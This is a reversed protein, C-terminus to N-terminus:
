ARALLSRIAVAGAEEGQQELSAALPAALDRSYAVVAERLDGVREPQGLAELRAELERYLALAFGPAAEVASAAWSVVSAYFAKIDEEKEEEERQAEAMLDAAAIVADPAVRLNGSNVALKYCTIANDVEGRTRYLDGLRLRVDGTYSRIPQGPASAARYATEALDDQGRSLLEDGLHLAVLPDIASARACIEKQSSEEAIQLLARAAALSTDSVGEELVAEYFTRAETPDMPALKEALRLLALHRSSDLRKEVLKRLHTEAADMQDQRILLGALEFRARARQESSAGKQTLVKELMSRAAATRGEGECMLALEPAVAPNRATRELEAEAADDEGRGRLIRAAKAAAAPSVTRDGTKAARRFAELALDTEELRLCLHGVQWWDGPEGDAGGAELARTCAQVSGRRDGLDFREGAIWTLTTVSLAHHIGEDFALLRDETSLLSADRLFLDHAPDIGLRERVIGKMLEDCREVMKRGADAENAHDSSVMKMTADKQQKLLNLDAPSHVRRLEECLKRAAAPSTLTLLRSWRILAQVQIANYDHTWRSRQSKILADVDVGTADLERTPQGKPRLSPHPLLTSLLSDIIRPSALSIRDVEARASLSDFPEADLPLLPPVTRASTRIPPAPINQRVSQAWELLDIQLDLMEIQALAWGPEKRLVQRLRGAARTLYRHKDLPSVPGLAAERDLKALHFAPLVFGPNETQAKEFCERARTLERPQGGRLYNSYHALGCDTRAFALVSRVLRPEGDSIKANKEVRKLYTIFRKMLAPTPREFFYDVFGLRPEGLMASIANVYHAYARAFKGEEATIRALNWDLEAVMAEGRVEKYERGAELSAVAIDRWTSEEGAGDQPLASGPDALLWAIFGRNAWAALNGPNVAIVKAYEDLVLRAVDPELPNRRRWLEEYMQARQFHAREMTPALEAARAMLRLSHVPEVEALGAALLFEPDDRTRAPRLAEAECLAARAGEGDGLYFRATALTVKARFLIDQRDEVDEPTKELRQMAAEINPVAEYLEHPVTGSLLRLHWEAALMWAYGLEARAALVERRGLVRLFKAAFRRVLCRLRDVLVWTRNAFRRWHTASERRSAADYIEQARRYLSRAAEYADLTNSTAYDDAEALFAAARLRGPPLLRVKEEVGERIQAYIQSAVSWYVREFLRRYDEGSLPSGEESRPPLRYRVTQAVKGPAENGGLRVQPVIKLIAEGDSEERVGYWGCVHVHAAPPGDEDRDPVLTEELLSLRSVRTGLKEVLDRRLWGLSAEVGSSGSSNPSDSFEGVSYTYQFPERSEQIWLRAWNILLLSVTIGAGVLAYTHADAVSVAEKAALAALSLLVGLWGVSRLQRSRHIRGNSSPDVILDAPLKSPFRIRM